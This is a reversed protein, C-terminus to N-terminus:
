PPQAIKVDGSHTIYVVTQRPHDEGTQEFTTSQNGDLLVTVEPISDGSIDTCHRVGAESAITYAFGIQQGGASNDTPSSSFELEHERDSFNFLLFCTDGATSLNESIVRQVQQHTVRYARPFTGLEGVDTPALLHETRASGGCSTIVYFNGNVQRDLEARCDVTVSDVDNEAIFNNHYVASEYEEVFEVVSERTLPEPIEPVEKPNPSDGVANSGVLFAAGSVSATIGAGILLKRREM